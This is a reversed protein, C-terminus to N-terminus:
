STPICLSVRDRVSGSRLTTHYGQTDTYTAEFSYNGPETAALISRDPSGYSAFPVGDFFWQVGEISAIGEPDGGFTAVLEALKGNGASFAQDTPGSFTYPRIKLTAYGNDVMEVQVSLPALTRQFGPLDYYTPTLSWTGTSLADLNISAQSPDGVAQSKPHWLYVNDNTDGRDGNPDGSIVASLQDGERVRLPVVSGIPNAQGNALLRLLGPGLEDIRVNEWPSVLHNLNNFIQPGGALDGGSAAKGWSVATGDASVAVFAGANSYLAIAPHAQLLQQILLANAPSAGVAPDGWLGIRGDSSLAAYAGGSARVDSWSAAPSSQVPAFYGTPNPASLAVGSGFSELAGDPRIVALGSSGFIPDQASLSGKYLGGAGVEYLLLSNDAFRWGIGGGPVAFRRRVGTLVGAGQPYPIHIPGIGAEYTSGLSGWLFVRGEADFGHFEYADSGLEVIDPRNTISVGSADGIGAPAGWTIVQGTATRAAFGADNCVLELV